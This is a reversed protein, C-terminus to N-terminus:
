RALVRVGPFAGFGGQDYGEEPSIDLGIQM